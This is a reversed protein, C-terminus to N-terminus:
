LRKRLRETVISGETAFRMKEGRAGVSQTQFVTDFRTNDAILTAGNDLAVMRLHVHRDYEDRDFKFIENFLEDRPLAAKMAAVADKSLGLTEVIKAISVKRGHQGRVTQSAAVLDSRVISNPASEIAGRFAAATWRAGHAATASLDSDLFKGIWYDAGEKQAGSQKDIAFGNWFGAAASSANYVVSKYHFSSKMFVQEIFKLSLSEGRADAMVGEDAPFRAVVLRLGQATTGMVLFLLGHKSRGTTHTRLRKAVQRGIDLKRKAALYTMLLTRCENEQEGNPGLRFTIEVDNDNDALDYIGKLMEILRGSKNFNLEAGGIAVPAKTHNGPYVLFSHGHTIPM